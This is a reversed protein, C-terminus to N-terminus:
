LNKMAAGIAVAFRPARAKLINEIRPPYVMRSLPDGIFVKKNLKKSLYEAIGPLRASGGALIIKEVSRGIKKNYIGIMREIELAIIDIIPYLVLSIEKEGKFYGPKDSSLGSVKGKVGEDKKIEESRIADVGMAGTIVRTFESGAIDMHHNIALFGKDVIALNTNKSGIDAICAPSSDNGLVSRILSFTESEMGVINLGSLRAINLYKNVIEKPAAMLLVRIKGSEKSLNMSSADTKNGDILEWGYIVDSLPIPIYQKAKFNIARDIEEKPMAPLEILTTFTSFVPLSFVAERSNFKAESVLDRIIEAVENDLIKFSSTQIGENDVRLYKKQADYLAYNALNIRGQDRFLEVVKISVTGIDIGIFFKTKSKFPWM